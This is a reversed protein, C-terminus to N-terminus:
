KDTLRLRQGPQLAASGNLAVLRDVTSRVDSTPDVERAITWLTDGPQVVYVAPTLATANPRSAAVPTDGPGSAGTAVVAAPLALVSLAALLV